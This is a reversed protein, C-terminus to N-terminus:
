GLHNEEVTESHMQQTKVEIGVFEQAEEMLYIREGAKRLESELMGSHAFELSTSIVDKM